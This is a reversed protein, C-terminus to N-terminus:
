LFYSRTNIDNRQRELLHQVHRAYEPDDAAGRPTSSAAARTQLVLEILDSKEFCNRTNVARRALYLRLDQVTYWALETRTLTGSHLQVCRKCRKPICVSAASIGIVSRAIRDLLFTAQRQVSRVPQETRRKLKRM